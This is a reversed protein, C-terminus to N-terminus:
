NIKQNVNLQIKTWVFICMPVCPDCILQFNKSSPAWYNYIFISNKIAKLKNLM